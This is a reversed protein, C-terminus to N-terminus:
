QIKHNYIYNGSNTSNVDNARDLQVQWHESMSLQFKFISIVRFTKPNVWHTPSLEAEWSDRSISIDIVRLRLIGLKRLAVQSLKSQRSSVQSQKLSSSVVQSHKPM